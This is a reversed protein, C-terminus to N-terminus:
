SGQQVVQRSARQRRKQHRRKQAVRSTETQKAPRSEVGSARPAPETGQMEHFLKETWDFVNDHQYGRATFLRRFLRRLHAYKPVDESGLSWAHEMYQVFERPLGECLAEASLRTKKEKILESRRKENDAKLGQWPLSGRVFYLLVYGLSELDDGWSQAAVSDVLSCRPVPPRM